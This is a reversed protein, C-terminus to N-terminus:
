LGENVVSVCLARLVSNKGMRPLHRSHALQEDAKPPSHHTVHCPIRLSLIPFQFEMIYLMGKMHGSSDDPCM